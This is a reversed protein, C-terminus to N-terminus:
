LKEVAAKGLAMHNSIDEGKTAEIETCCGCQDSEESFFPLPGCTFLPTDAPRQIDRLLTSVIVKICIKTLSNSAVTLTVTKNSVSSCSM